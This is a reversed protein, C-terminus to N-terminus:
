GVGGLGSLVARHRPSNLLKQIEDLISERGVFAGDRDFPVMFIPKRPPPAQPTKAPQIHLALLKNQIDLSSTTQHFVLIQVHHELVSISREVDKDHALSRLAYLRRQWSSSDSAPLAKSLYNQLLKVEELCAEVLPKLASATTSDICGASAQQQTRKLTEILLPLRDSLTKFAKPVEEINSQFDKLREVIKSGFDVFQVISAVLGIVALAEAM